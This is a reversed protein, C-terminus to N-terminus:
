FGVTVRLANTLFGRAPDRVLGQLHLRRGALAIDPPIPATYASLGNRPNGVLQGLDILVEGFPGPSPGLRDGRGLPAPPRLGFEFTLLMPTHGHNFPIGAITRRFVETGLVGFGRTGQYLAFSIAGGITPDVNSGFAITINRVLGSQRCFKFGWSM